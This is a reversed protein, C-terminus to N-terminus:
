SYVGISALILALTGLSGSLGTALRAIGRWLNLNEELPAVNVVLNPDLEKARARIAAAMSSPDGATRVLLGVRGHGGSGVPYYIFPTTADGVQAIQADRVVGVVRLPMRKGEGLDQDISKDLPNEGPWFHRATSESILVEQNAADPVAEFNRGLIV